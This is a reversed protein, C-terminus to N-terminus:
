TKRCKRLEAAKAAYLKVINELNGKWYTCGEKGYFNNKDFKVKPCGGMCFPLYRCDLCDIDILPDYNEWKQYQPVNIDGYANGCWKEAEGIELGCRFYRGKPDFAYSNSRLAGCTM